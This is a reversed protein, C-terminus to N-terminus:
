ISARPSTSPEWPYLLAFINIFVTLICYKLGKALYTRRRVKQISNRCTKVDSKGFAVNRNREMWSWGGHYYTSCSIAAMLCYRRCFNHQLVVMVVVLGFLLGRVPDGVEDDADDDIKSGIM